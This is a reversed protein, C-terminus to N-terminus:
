SQKELIELPMRPFGGYGEDKARLRKGETGHEM